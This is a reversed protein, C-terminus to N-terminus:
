FNLCWGRLSRDDELPFAEETKVEISVGFSARPLSLLNRTATVGEVSCDRACFITFREMVSARTILYKGFELEQKEGKFDRICVSKLKHTVCDCLERREWFKSKPYPLRCGKSSTYEAEKEKIVRETIELNRLYNCTRLVYSLAMAERVNNLDLDITLSFLKEFINPRSTDEYRLLDSCHELIEKTKLLPGKENDPDPDPDPNMRGTGPSCYISFVRLSPSDIVLGKVPCILSGLVLVTLNEACIDIKQVDIDQLELVKLNPNCIMVEKLLVCSKISLSELSMCSSLVENLIEDALFVNKLKLNRLNQCGEFPSSSIMTYNILELTCLSRSFTSLPLNLKLDYGETESQIPGYYNRCRLTLDRVVKEEVLCKVWKELQNSECIDEFHSIRCCTLEGCHQYLISWLPRWRKSLISTRVADDVPLYSIISCLLPDPLVSILDAENFVGIETRRRTRRM